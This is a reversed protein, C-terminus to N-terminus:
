QPPLVIIQGFDMTTLLAKVRELEPGSALPGIQVSFFTPASRVVQASVEIVSQLQQM